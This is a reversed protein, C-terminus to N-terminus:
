VCWVEASVGVVRYLGVDKLVWWLVEKIEEVNEVAEAGDV